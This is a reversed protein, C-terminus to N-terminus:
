KPNNYLLSIFKVEKKKFLFYMNNLINIIQTEKVIPLVM